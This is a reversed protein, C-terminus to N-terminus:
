KYGREGIKATQDDHHWRVETWNSRTFRYLHSLFAPEKVVFEEEFRKMQSHSEDSQKAFMSDIDEASNVNEFALFELINAFLSEMCTAGIHSLAGETAKVLEVESQILFQDIGGNNVQNDFNMSCFITREVENLQSLSKKRYLSAAADWAAVTLDVDNWQDITEVTPIGLRADYNINRFKYLAVFYRRLSEFM